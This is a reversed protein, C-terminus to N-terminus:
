IPFAQHTVFGISVDLEGISPEFDGPLDVAAVFYQDCEEGAEEAEIFLRRFVISATYFVIEAGLRHAPNDLEQSEELSTGSGIGATQGSEAV